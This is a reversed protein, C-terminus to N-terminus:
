TGWTWTGPDWVGLTTGNLAPELFTRVASVLAPFTQWPLEDTLAMRAYPASWEPPPDPFTTPLEHTKRFTFTLRLASRLREADIPGTSALLAFDPLDKIRSNPRSRPLTYAHLKEALHTEV